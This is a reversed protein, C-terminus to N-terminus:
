MLLEIGLEECVGFVIKEIRMMEEEGVMEMMECDSCIVGFYWEGNEERLRGMEEVYEESVGM